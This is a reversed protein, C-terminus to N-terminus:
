YDEERLQDGRVLCYYARKIRAKCERFNLKFRAWLTPKKYKLETFILQDKEQIIATMPASWIDEVMKNIDEIIM